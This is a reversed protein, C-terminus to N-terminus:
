FCAISLSFVGVYKILTPYQLPWDWQPDIIQNLGLVIWHREPSGYFKDAIIEPTDTDKVEYEYYSADNEVLDQEFAFRAIVDTVVDAQPKDEVDQVMVIEALQESELLNKALTTVVGGNAAKALIEPNKSRLSHVAKPQKQEFKKQIVQPCGEYCKGCDQGNRELICYDKIAPRLISMEIHKCSGACLGCGQCLGADIIEKRLLEFSM